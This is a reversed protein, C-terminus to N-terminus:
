LGLEEPPQPPTREFSHSSIWTYLTRIHNLALHLKSTTRANDAKILANDAELASVRRELPAVLVVAAQAIAGAAEANDRRRGLIKTLVSGAAGSGAIVGAWELTVSANSM